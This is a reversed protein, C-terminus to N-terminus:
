FVISKNKESRKLCENVLQSDVSGRVVYEAFIDALKEVKNSDMPVGMDSLINEASIYLQDKHM